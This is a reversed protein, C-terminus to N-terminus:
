RPPVFSGMDVIVRGGIGVGCIEREVVDVLYTAHPLRDQQRLPQEHESISRTPHPRRHNTWATPAINGDLVMRGVRHPFLNAYTAGLITGYSLGWYNLKPQGLDRRLLNLDRATDATSVHRLLM